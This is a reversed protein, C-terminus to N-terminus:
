ELTHEAVWGIAGLATHVQAFGDTVQLVDVIAGPALTGSEPAASLPVERLGTGKQGIFKATRGSLPQRGRAAEGPHAMERAGSLMILAPIGTIVAGILSIAVVFGFGLFADQNTGLLLGIPILALFGVPLLFALGVAGYAVRHSRLTVAAIATGTIAFALLGYLQGLTSVGSAMWLGLLGVLISPVLVFM